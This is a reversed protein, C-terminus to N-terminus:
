NVNKWVRYTVINKIEEWRVFDYKKQIDAVRFGNSFLYRIDKVQDETLKSRPNNEGQTQNYGYLMGHEYNGQATTWELNRYDNNKRDSDLHNVVNCGEPKELYTLAVLRHVFWTDTKGNNSIHVKYYGDQDPHAGMHKRYVLNYVDGLESIEYNPYGPIPKYILDKKRKHWELNSVHNNHQNGDKHCVCYVDLDMEGLYTSAVLESILYYTERICCRDDGLPKAYIRLPKGNRKSLVDGYESIKYGKLFPIERYEM